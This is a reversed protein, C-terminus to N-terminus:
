RTRSLTFFRRAVSPGTPRIESASARWRARSSRRSTASPASGRATRSVSSSPTRHSRKLSSNQPEGSRDALTRSDHGRSISLYMRGAIPWTFGVSWDMRARMTSNVSAIARVPLPYMAFRMKSIVRRM